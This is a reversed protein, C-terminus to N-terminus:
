DIRNNLRSLVDTNRNLAQEIAHLSERMMIMAERSQDIHNAALQEAQDALRTNAQTIHRALWYAILCIAVLAGGQLIITEVSM